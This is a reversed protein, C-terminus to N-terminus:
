EDAEEKQSLGWLWAVLFGLPALGAIWKWGQLSTVTNFPIPDPLNYDKPKGQLIYVMHLQEQKGYAQIGSITNIDKVYTLAQVPCKAVCAPEKGKATRQICFSCKRM